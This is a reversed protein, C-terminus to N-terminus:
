TAICCSNQPSNIGPNTWILMCCEKTPGVLNKEIDIMQIWSTCGDLWVSVAVVQFFDLRIKNSIQNGYSRYGALLLICRGSRNTLMVKLLHSIVVSSVFMDILKLPKGRLASIVEWKSCVLETKTANIYFGIIGVTQKLSHQIQLFCQIILITQMQSLKQPIDDAKTRKLTFGNEKM